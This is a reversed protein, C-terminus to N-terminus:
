VNRDSILKMTAKAGPHSLTHLKTFVASQQTAPVFPHPFFCNVNCWLTIRQMKFSQLKSRYTQTDTDTVQADAIAELDVLDSQVAAVSRSLADAVINEQGWM